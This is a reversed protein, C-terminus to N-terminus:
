GKEPGTLLFRSRREKEFLQSWSKLVPTTFIEERKATERSSCNSIFLTVFFVNSSNQSENTTSRLYHKKGPNNGAM